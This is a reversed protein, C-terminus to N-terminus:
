NKSMTRSGLEHVSNMVFKKLFFNILNFLFLIFDFLNLCFKSFYFLIKLFLTQQYFYKLPMISERANGIFALVIHICQNIRVFLTEPSHKHRLSVTNYKVVM